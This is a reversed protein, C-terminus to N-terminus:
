VPVGSSDVTVWATVRVDVVFRGRGITKDSLDKVRVLQIWNYGTGPQSIYKRVIRKVEDMMKVAHPRIDTPVARKYTTQLDISVLPEEQFERGGIGFATDQEDAVYIIAYDSNGLNFEKIDSAKAITPTLSDTRSNDWQASLLTSVTSLVDVM